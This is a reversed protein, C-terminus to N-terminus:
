DCRSFDSFSLTYRARLKVRKGRTDRGHINLIVDRFGPTVSRTSRGELLKTDGDARLALFLLRGKDGATIETPGYFSLKRTRFSARAGDVKLVKFWAREFRVDADHDNQVELSFVSDFFPEYVKEDEQIQGDSNKDDVSCVNRSLDIQLGGATDVTYEGEDLVAVQTIRIQAFSIVPSFVFAVLAIVVFKM